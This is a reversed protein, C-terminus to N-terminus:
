VDEIPARLDMDSLQKLYNWKKWIATLELLLTSSVKIICYEETCMSRPVSASTMTAIMAFYLASGLVENLRFLSLVGLSERVGNVWLILGQGHPCGDDGWTGNARYTESSAM